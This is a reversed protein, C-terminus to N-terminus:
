GMRVMRIRRGRAPHRQRAGTQFQRFDARGMAKPNATASSARAPHSSNAVGPIGVAGPAGAPYKRQSSAGHIPRNQM